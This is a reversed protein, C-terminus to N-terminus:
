SLAALLYAWWSKPLIWTYLQDTIDIERENDYNNYKPLSENRESLARAGISYTYCEGSAKRAYVVDRLLTQEEDDMTRFQAGLGELLWKDAYWPWTHLNARDAQSPAHLKSWERFKKVAQEELIDPIDMIRIASIESIDFGNNHVEVSRASRSNKAVVFCDEYGNSEVWYLKWKAMDDGGFLGRTFTASVM